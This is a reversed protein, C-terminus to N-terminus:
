EGVLFLSSAVLFMYLFSARLNAAAFLQMVLWVPGPLVANAVSSM